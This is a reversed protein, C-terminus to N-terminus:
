EKAFKIAALALELTPDVIPIDTKIHPILIPIETCAAIIVDVDLSKLSDIVNQFTPLYEELKGAKVGDYISAMVDRQLTESLEVSHYGASILTNDYLKSKITGDTGLVIINKKDPYRKSITDVTITIMNIIPIDIKEQIKDTFFHATNCPIILADAGAVELRRASIIMEELPNDIGHLIYTTRDRINTNNDIIIHIHEQDSKADTNSIIKSFMDATALPGMGGIIGITKM